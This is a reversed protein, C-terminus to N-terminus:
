TYTKQWKMKIRRWIKFISKKEEDVTPPQYEIKQLGQQSVLLLTVKLDVDENAVELSREEQAFQSRSSLKDSTLTNNLKQTIKSM